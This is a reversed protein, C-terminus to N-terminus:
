KMPLNTGLIVKGNKYIKTVEGSQLMNTAVVEDVGNPLTNAKQQFRADRTPDKMQKLKEQLKKIHKKYTSDNSRNLKAREDTKIGDDGDNIAPILLVMGEEISFPNYIDNFWLIIDTYEITNYYRMSIKDPRGVEYPAVVHTHYIAPAYVDFSPMHLDVLTEKTYKDQILGKSALTKINM